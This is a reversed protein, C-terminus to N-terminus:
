LADEGLDSVGLIFGAAYGFILQDVVPTFEESLQRAREAYDSTPEIRLTISLQHPGPTNEAYSWNSEGILDNMRKVWTDKRGDRRRGVRTKAAQQRQEVTVGAPRVPLGLTAEHISLLGYTDDAKHPWAQLRVAEMLAQIGDLEGAAAELVAIVEPDDREWPTIYSLLLEGRGSM